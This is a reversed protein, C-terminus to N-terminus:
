ARRPRIYRLGCGIRGYEEPITLGLLGADGMERFIGADATEDRYADRVKPQLTSQAFEAAADRLMREDESLQDELRLADTWDFASLDPGHGTKIASSENMESGM